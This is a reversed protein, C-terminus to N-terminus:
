QVCRTSLPKPVNLILRNPRDAIDLALAAVFSSISRLHPYDIYEPEDSVQHYDGHLGTSFLSVPVGLRAYAAHDARCWANEPHGPADYSMDIHFPRALTTNLSDILDGLETSRRRAGVLMLYEPGGGAFDRATGRGIMELNLLAAISDLPVSPHDSQWLSGLDGEEEATHAVFLISRPPRASSGTALEAIELLAAIGSADDDAGNFISDPRSRHHRRVSDMNVRIRAAAEASVMLSANTRRLAEYQQFFLHVSDRDVPSRSYGIHDHHASVVVYEKNRVGDSGLLLGLVNRAAFRPRALTYAIRGSVRGGRTGVPAGEAARGLLRDAAPSSLLFLGAGDKMAPRSIAGSDIRMEPASLYEIWNAPTVDLTAAGIGAASAYRRVLSSGFTFNILPGAGAPVTLLVFRGTASASDLWHLTDGLVGGYIVEASQLARPRISNWAGRAPFPVFELRPRLRHRSAALSTGSWDIAREVLPVAQFYTGHDGLPQLGIRQFEQAVYSAVLDDGRSGTKRGLMSDAAIISVRLRLDAETIAPVTAGMAPKPQGLVDGHPICLIFAAVRIINSRTAM